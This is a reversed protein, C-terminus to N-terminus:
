ARGFLRMAWDLFVRVRPSLQRNRPYLLSVPVPRPPWAPLVQVLTGRALDKEAHFYPIQVLGLGLRATALYSETGTVSMITPLLIEQVRDGIMFALPRVRGTTLSRLGIM